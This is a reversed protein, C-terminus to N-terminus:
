SLREAVRLLEREEMMRHLVPEQRDFVDSFWRTEPITVSDVLTFLPKFGGKGTVKIMITNGRKSKLWGIKGTQERATGRVGPFPITLKKGKAHITGGEDQIRAYPVKKISGIGTGVQLVHAKGSLTSHLKHGINRWLNGTIGGRRSRGKRLKARANLKLLQETRIGWSALQYKAADPITKGMRIKAEAGDKDIRISPSM